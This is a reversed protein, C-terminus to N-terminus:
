NGFDNTKLDRTRTIMKKDCFRLTIGRRQTRNWHENFCM